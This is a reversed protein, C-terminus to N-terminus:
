TCSDSLAKRLQNISGTPASSHRHSTVLPSKYYWFLSHHFSSQIAMARAAATHARYPVNDFRPSTMNQQFCNDPSANHSYGSHWHARAGNSTSREKGQYINNINPRTGNTAKFRSLRPNKTSSMLAHNRNQPCSPTLSNCLPLQRAATCLSACPCSRRSSVASKITSNYMAQHTHPDPHLANRSLVQPALM